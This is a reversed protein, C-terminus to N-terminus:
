DENTNTNGRMRKFAGIFIKGALVLILGAASGIVDLVWDIFDFERNPLYMKIAEDFLGFACSIVLAAFFAKPLSEAYHSVAYYMAMSLPLYLFIHIFSRLLQMDSLWAPVNGNGFFAMLMKQFKMSLASSAAPPQFTLFMIAAILLLAPAFATIHRVFGFRKPTNEDDYDEDYEAEIDKAKGKLAGPHAELYKQIAAKFDRSFHSFTLWLSGLIFGLATGLIIIRARSPKYKFDPPKAYDVIQLHFFNQAEELRARELRQLLNEYNESAYLVRMEYRQYETGLQSSSTRQVEELRALEKTLENLQSVAARLRPNTSPVYTRMASIEVKKDAIQKQIDTISQLTAKMQSQPIAIGGIQEQYDQLEKQVSDLHQRAQFLQREFFARRQAANNISIDLMKNQLAELFANAIDAARQPDEDLIGITIIGSKENADTEMLERSLKERMRVRYTQKYLEMLSFKDIIVDLVSERKILGLMMQTGTVTESIPTNPLGGLMESQDVFSVFVGLNNMFQNPPLFHCEAKYILPRTFAVYFSIIAALLTFSIIIKRGNWVVLLKGILSNEEEM